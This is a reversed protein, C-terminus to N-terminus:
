PEITGWPQAIVQRLHRGTLTDAAVIEEPTGAAVVTGGERGGGPGMDILYDCASLVQLSHEVLLVSNGNEVLRALVRLLRAIDKMHLGTSPEDLLYIRGSQSLESALKLRQAEGGSLSNLRQGLTVYGLGVEVLLRLLKSVARHDALPPFALAEDVTLDLVDAVNKGGVKAALAEPNFRRGKCVECRVRVNALFSMEVDLQGSGKCRPCGGKSNFSYLAAPQGSQKAFLKRIHDFAGAYTALCGRSTRGVSSQDIVVCSEQHAKLFEIFLLSSKGAGSLGTLACLVQSPLAVDLDRLNNVNAHRVRMWGQPERRQRPQPAAAVREGGEPAEGRTLRRAADHCLVQRLCQGTVSTDSHLMSEFPGEFIVRGGDAGAGPGVEVVWDAAALLQTSHDIAVVTNGTAVLSRALQVVRGVDHAHCGKTPEDLVYLLGVLGCRLQRALKVRQSEGPSLSTVSQALTLYGVGVDRLSSLRRELNRVAPVAFRRM